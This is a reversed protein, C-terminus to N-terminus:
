INAESVVDLIVKSLRSKARAESVHTDIIRLGYWNLRRTQTCHSSLSRTFHFTSIGPLRTTISHAVWSCHAKRFSRHLLWTIFLSVTVLADTCYNKTYFNFVQILYTVFYRGFKNYTVILQLGSFLFSCVDVIRQYLYLHPQFFTFSYICNLAFEFQKIYWNWMILGAHPRTDTRVTKKHASVFDEDHYLGTEDYQCLSEVCWM